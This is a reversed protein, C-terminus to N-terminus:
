RRIQRLRDAPLHRGVLENFIDDDFSIGERASAYKVDELFDIGSHDARGVSNDRIRRVIKELQKKQWARNRPDPLALIEKVFYKFSNIKVPTRQTVTEPRRKTPPASLLLITTPMRRDRERRLRGGTTKWQTAPAQSPEVARQHHNYKLIMMMM